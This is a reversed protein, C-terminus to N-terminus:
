PLPSMEALGRTADLVAARLTEVRSAPLRVDFRVDAAFAQDTIEAEFAPFLQQLVAIRAYDIVIRLAVYEIREALPLGALVAQVGGAYARVLGGTGLKVGGYYRTVVVAVDGVGSHLLASLMPRGATGHPEGADSMGIRATDGPPGVLYAWCNHTADAFEESVRRIFSTAEEVTSARAVSTIFRSRSLEQEVRHPAAPVHYRKSDGM